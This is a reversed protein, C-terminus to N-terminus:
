IGDSTFIVDSSVSWDERPKKMIAKLIKSNVIAHSMKKYGGAQLRYEAHRLNKYIFEIVALPERWASRTANCQM